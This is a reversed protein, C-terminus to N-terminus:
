QGKRPSATHLLPKGEYCYGGRYETGFTYSIAGIDSDLFASLRLIEQFKLIRYREAIKKEVSFCFSEIKNTKVNWYFLTENCMCFFTDGYLKIVKYWRSNNTLINDLEPLKEIEGTTINSNVVNGNYRLTAQNTFIAM